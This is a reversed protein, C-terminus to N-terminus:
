IINKYVSDNLNHNVIEEIMDRININYDYKIGKESKIEIVLDNYISGMWYTDEIAFDNIRCYEIAVEDCVNNYRDILRNFEEKNM